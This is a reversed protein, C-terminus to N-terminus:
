PWCRRFEDRSCWCVPCRPIPTHWRGDARGNSHILRVRPRHPYSAGSLHSDDDTIESPLTLRLNQCAARDPLEIGIAQALRLGALLGRVTYAKDRVRERL